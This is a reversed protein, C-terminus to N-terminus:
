AGGCIKAVDNAYRAWRQKDEHVADVYESFLRREAEKRIDEPSSPGVYGEGKCTKCDVWQECSCCEYGGTGNCEPCMCEVEDSERLEREIENLRAWNNKRWEDFPMVSPPAETM